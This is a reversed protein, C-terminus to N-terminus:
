FPLEDTDTVDVDNEKEEFRSTPAVTLKKPFKSKGYSLYKIENKRKSNPVREDAEKIIVEAKLLLGNFHQIIADYDEFDYQPNEQTELISQIKNYNYEGTNKNKYIGDYVRKGQFEQNVDDRVTYICNIYPEKNNTEAWEATLEMEYYGPKEIIGVSKDKKEKFSLM